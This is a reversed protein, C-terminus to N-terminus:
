RTSIRLSGFLRLLHCTIIHKNQTNKKEDLIQFFKFNRKRKSKKELSQSNLPGLSCNVRNQPGSSHEPLSNTRADYKEVEADNRVPPHPGSKDARRDISCTKQSRAKMINSKHTKLNGGDVAKIIVGDSSFKGLM